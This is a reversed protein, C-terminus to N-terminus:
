YSLGTELIKEWRKKTVFNHSVMTVNCKDVTLSVKLSLNRDVEEKWELEGQPYRSRPLGFCHFNEVCPGLSNWKDFNRMRLVM